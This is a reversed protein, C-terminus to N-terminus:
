KCMSNTSILKPAWEIWNVEPKNYLKYVQMEQGQKSKIDPTVLIVGGSVITSMTETKIKLGSLDFNMGIGGAHYFKSGNQVLHEFCPEIYVLIDIASADPKLELEEVNGIIFQRYYLPSNVKLSSMKSAELVLRLGRKNLSAAPKTQQIIFHNQQEESNGPLIAIFAGSIIAASNKVGSLNLSFNDVWLRSDTVFYKMYKKEIQATVKINSNVDLFLDTVKGITMSKYTIQSGIKIDNKEKMMISIQTTNVESQAYSAYLQFFKSNDFKHKLSIENKTIFSIGGSLITQLSETKIEMNPFNMKLSVGSSNFFVTSDNVFSKYSKEIFAKIIFEKDYYSYAVIKGVKMQKFYIPSGKKISGLTASTLTIFLGDSNLYEQENLLKKDHHLLFNNKSSKVKFDITKFTIGGSLMGKISPVSVSIGDFNVESELANQMYFITSDNVLSIYKENISIKINVHKNDKDLNVSDVFGVEIDHYFVLVGEKLSKADESKLTFYKGMKKPEETHLKFYDNVKENKDKEFTIYNGRVIADLGKIEDLGLKPEVIWFYAGEIILEKFYPKFRIKFHTEDKKPFYTIDVVNGAEIGKYYIHTQAPHMKYGKEGVLTIINSDLLMM